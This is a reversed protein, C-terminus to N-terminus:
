SRRRTRKPEEAAPEAQAAQAGPTSGLQQVTSLIMGDTIVAPDRGPRYDPETDPPHAALASDWAAGWGPSAAWVYRNNDVWQFATPQVLPASGLYSQQTAAALMRERMWQDGAIDSISLYTDAM